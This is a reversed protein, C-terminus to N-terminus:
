SSIEIQACTFQGPLIVTSLHTSIFKIQLFHYFDIALPHLAIM